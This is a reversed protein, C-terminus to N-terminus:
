DIADKLKKLAKHILGVVIGLVGTGALVEGTQSVLVDHPKDSILELVPILFPTIPTDPFLSIVIGVVAVSLSIITKAGDVGLVDSAKKLGDEIWDLLFTKFIWEKAQNVWHRVIGM